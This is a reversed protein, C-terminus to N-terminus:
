SHTSLLSTTEDEYLIQIDELHKKITDGHCRKPKCFCGLTVPYTLSKALLRDLEERVKHNTILQQEFWTDYLDCVRNREEDSNNHMVFPNGLPSGRGIYDTHRVKYKNVVEINHM